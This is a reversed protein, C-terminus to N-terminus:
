VDDLEAKSVTIEPSTNEIKIETSTGDSFSIKYKEIGDKDSVKEINDIQSTFAKMQETPDDECSVLALPALALLLCMLVLFIRKAM